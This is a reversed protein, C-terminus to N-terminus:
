FIEKPYFALPTVKYEKEQVIAAETTLVLGGVSCADELAVKVVNYSDIIGKDFMNVFSESKLDYGTQNDDYENLLTQVIYRGNKDGNSAMIELPRRLAKQLIKAGAVEEFNPSEFYDLIRSAYLLASGGGPLIGQAQATKLSNLADVIKDYHEAIEVDSNGGCLLLALKGNLRSIRDKIMSTKTQNGSVEDLRHRLDDIRKNIEESRGGSGVFFTEAQSCIVKKARGLDELKCELLKDPHGEDFLYSGTLVSIDEIMDRSFGGMGPVTIVCVNIIDKVHNYLINSLCENNVDRAVIFLPVNTKKVEDLIPLIQKLKTIELDVTLIYPDAMEINTKSLDKIFEASAYGRNLTAGETFILTTDFTQNPEIHVIGNKGTKFVAESLLESLWEDYNTSVMAVNYLEEKTEVDKKIAELYELILKKAKLIGNKVNISNYGQSVIGLGEEVICSALLTSTTTGDGAFLNTSHSVRRLLHAGMEHGRNSFSVNKAVTVGDKTIRPLGLENEIAVNKGHPGMTVKKQLVRSVQKLLKLEPFGSQLNEEQIEM